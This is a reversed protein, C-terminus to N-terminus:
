TDTPSTCVVWGSLGPMSRACVRKKPRRLSHPRCKSSGVADAAYALGADPRCCWVPGCRSCFLPRLYNLLVKVVETGKKNSATCPCAQMSHDKGDRDQANPLQRVPAVVDMLGAIGCPSAMRDM